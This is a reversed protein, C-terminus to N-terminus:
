WFYDLVTSSKKDACDIHSVSLCLNLCAPLDCVNAGKVHAFDYSCIELNLFYHMETLAQSIREWFQPYIEAINWGLSVPM